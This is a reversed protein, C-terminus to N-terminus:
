IRKRGYRGHMSCIRKASAAHMPYLDIKKYELRIVNPLAHYKTMQSCYMGKSYAHKAIEVSIVRYITMSWSQTRSKPKSEDFVKVIVPVLIDSSNENDPIRASTVPPALPM